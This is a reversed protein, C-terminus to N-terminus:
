GVLEGYDKVISDYSHFGLDPLDCFPYEVEMEGPLYDYGIVVLAIDVLYEVNTMYTDENTEVLEGDFEYFYEYSYNETDTDPDYEYYVDRRYTLQLAFEDFDYVYTDVQRHAEEGHYYTITIVGYCVAIVFSGGEAMYCIEPITIVEYVEDSYVDYTFIHLTATSYDDSPDDASVFIMDLVGDANMDYLNVFDKNYIEEAKKIETEYEALVELYAEVCEYYVETLSGTSPDTTPDTPKPDAAPDLVFIFPAANLFGLADSLKSIKSIKWEGDELEFTLKGKIQTTDKASKLATVVEGYDWYDDAYYVKNWDILEYEIKLTAENDKFEIDESEYNIVITSAVYEACDVAGYGYCEGYYDLDLLEEVAEYDKDDDDWNTLDLLSDSDLGNLAEVYSEMLDEIQSIDKEGSKKCGTVGASGALMAACLVAAIAKKIKM